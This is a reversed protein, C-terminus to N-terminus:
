DCGCGGSHGLSSQTDKKPGVRGEVKWRKIGETGKRKLKENRVVSSQFIFIGVVVIMVVDLGLGGIDRLFLIPKASTAPKPSQGALM